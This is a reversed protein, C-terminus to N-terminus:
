VLAEYGKVLHERLQQHIKREYAQADQSLKVLRSSTEQHPRLEQEHLLKSQELKSRKELDSAQRSISVRKLEEELQLWISRRIESLALQVRATRERFGRELSREVEEKLSEEAKELEKRIQEAELAPWIHFSHWIGFILVLAAVVRIGDKIRQIIREGREYAEKEQMQAHEQMEKEQKYRAAQAADAAPEGTMVKPAAPKSEFFSVAGFLIGSFMVIPIVFKMSGQLLHLVSKLLLEGKWRSRYNIQALTKSLIEAEDMKVPALTVPGVAAKWDRVIQELGPRLEARVLNCEDRVGDQLASRIEESIDAIRNACVEVSIAHHGKQETLDARTLKDASARVKQFVPSTHKVVAQLRDDAAERLNNFHQDLRQRVEGARNTLENIGASNTGGQLASQVLQLEMRCRAAEDMHWRYLARVAPVLRRSAAFTVLLQGLRNAPRIPFTDQDFQSTAPNVPPLWIADPDPESAAFANEVTGGSPIVGWLWLPEFLRAQRRLAAQSTSPLPANAEWCIVTFQAAPILPIVESEVDLWAIQECLVIRVTSTLDKVPINACIPRRQSRSSETGVAAQLATCLQPADLYTVPSDGAAHITGPSNPSLTYDVVVGSTAPYLASMDIGIANGISTMAAMGAVRSEAVVVFQSANSSGTESIARILELFPMEARSRETESALTEAEASLSAFQPDLNM